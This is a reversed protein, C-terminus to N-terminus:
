SEAEESSSSLSAAIQAFQALAVQLDEVIEDELRAQAEPGIYDDTDPM